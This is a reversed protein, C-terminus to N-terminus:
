GMMSFATYDNLQIIHAYAGRSRSFKLKCALEEEEDLLM